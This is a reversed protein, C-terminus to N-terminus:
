VPRPCRYPSSLLTGVRAAACTLLLMCLRVIRGRAGNSDFWQVTWFYPFAAPLAPGTYAGVSAAGKVVGSSWVVSSEVDKGTGVTIVYASQAVGRATHGNAWAFTVNGSAIASPDVTTILNSDHPMDQVRLKTPALPGCAALAACAALLVFRRM